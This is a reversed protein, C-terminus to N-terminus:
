GSAREEGSTGGRARSLSPPPLCVCCCLVLTAARTDLAILPVGGGGPLPWGPQAPRPPTPRPRPPRAGGPAGAWVWPVLVFFNAPGLGPSLSLSPARGGEGQVRGEDERAPRAHEAVGRADGRDRRHGGGGGKGRCGWLRVALFAAAAATDEFTVFGFGRGEMVVADALAGWPTAYARLGPTSATPPLGGIFVKGTPPHPAPGPDGPQLYFFFPSARSCEAEGSRRLCSAAGRGAGDGRLRVQRDEANVAGGPAGGPEGAETTTATDGGSTDGEPAAGAGATGPAHEEKGAPAEGAVVGPSGGEGAPPPPARDTTVADCM